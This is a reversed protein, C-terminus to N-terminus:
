CITETKTNLDKRIKEYIGSRLESQNEGENQIISGQKQAHRTINKHTGSIM